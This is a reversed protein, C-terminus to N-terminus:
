AGDDVAPTPHTDRHVRLAENGVRRLYDATVEPTLTRDDELSVTIDDTPTAITVTVQM